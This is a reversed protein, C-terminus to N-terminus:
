PRAGELKFAEHESGQPLEPRPPTLRRAALPLRWLTELGARLLLVLKARRSVVVRGARPDCGRRRLVHGIRSYILRAARVALACRPSLYGLGADGSLYYGDALALLREVARAYRADAAAEFPRGGAALGAEACEARLLEAPLYLRGREWDERVDRCINTLQMAIGLHAAHRLARRDRVGMVHCMMLGVTGAVCYCYRLLEATSAYRLGDVDMAVDLAMGELLAQFYARPIGRARVVRQVARSLPDSPESGAYIADLELRLVALRARQEGRPALDIADDARRCYAYLVTAEDRAAPPLLASALAFSRSHRSISERALGRAAQEVPTSM